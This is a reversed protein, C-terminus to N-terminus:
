AAGWGRRKTKRLEAFYPRSDAFDRPLREWYLGAPKALPGCRITEEPTVIM